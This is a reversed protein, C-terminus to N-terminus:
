HNTDREFVLTGVAMKTDDPDNAISINSHALCVIRNQLVCCNLDYNFLPDQRVPHPVPRYGNAWTVTQESHYSFWLNYTAASTSNEFISNGSVGWNSIDYSYANKWGIPNTKAKGIVLVTKSGDSNTIGNPDMADPFRTFVEKRLIADPATQRSILNWNGSMTQEVNPLLVPHAVAKRYIERTHEFDLDSTPDASVRNIQGFAIFALFLFYSYACSKKIMASMM